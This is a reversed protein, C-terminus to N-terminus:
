VHTPTRRAGEGEGLGWGRSFTCDITEFSFHAFCPYMRGEGRKGRAERREEEAFIGLINILRCNHGDSMLQIINTRAEKNEKNM